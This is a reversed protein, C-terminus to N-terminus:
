PLGVVVAACAVVRRRGSGTPTSNTLALSPPTKFAWVAVTSHSRAVTPVVSPPRWVTTTCTFSSRASPATIAAAAVIASLEARAVRAVVSVRTSSPPGSARLRSSLGSGARGPSSTSARSVTVLVPVVSNSATSASTNMGSETSPKPVLVVVPAGVVQRPSWNVVAQLARSRKTYVTPDSGAPPPTVSLRGGSTAPLAAAPRSKVKLARARSVLPVVAM